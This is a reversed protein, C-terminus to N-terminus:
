RGAPDEDKGQQREEDLGHDGIFEDAVANDDADEDDCRDEEVEAPFVGEVEEAVARRVGVRVHVSVTM